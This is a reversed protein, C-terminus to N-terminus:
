LERLGVELYRMKSWLCRQQLLCCMPVLLQHIESHKWYVLYPILSTTVYSKKELLKQAIMFPNLTEQLDQVVLWQTPNLNCTLDGDEEMLALYTKLCMLRDFMSWTSWWCTAVDQIPKVARGVSQKSLLKAMAQSSNNCFNILIRCASM